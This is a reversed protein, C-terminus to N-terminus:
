RPSFRRSRETVATRVRTARRWAADEDEARMVRLLDAAAAQVHLEAAAGAPPGYVPPREEAISRLLERLRRREDPSAGRALTDTADALETVAESLSAPPREPDDLVAAVLRVLTLATNALLAM